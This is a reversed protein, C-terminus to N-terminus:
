TTTEVDLLQRIMDEDMDFEGSAALAAKNIYTYM